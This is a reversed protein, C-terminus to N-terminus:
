ITTEYTKYCMYHEASAHKVKSGVITICLGKVRPVITICLGKVWRSALISRLRM